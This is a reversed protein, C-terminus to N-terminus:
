KGSKPQTLDYLTVGGVSVTKFNNKVWNTIATGSGGVGQFNSGRAGEPSNSNVESGPLASGMGGGPLEGSASGGPFGGAMGGGPFESSTGRGPFTNSTNRGSFGGPGGAGMGDAIYYHIKGESVYQKFESLTMAPDSGSFGGIAMVPEGSALQYPASSMASTTAAVWTYHSADKQLLKVVAESPTTDGRGSFGGTNNRLTTAGSAEAPLSRSSDGTTGPGVGVAGNGGFGGKFGGGFTMSSVAPGASPTSGTHPTAVTDLTYAMPGALGVIMAAVAAGGFWRRGLKAGIVIAVAAIIGVVLISFRLWPYWTPTRNLLVYSWVVTALTAGALGGRAIFENKRRWLVDVGIGVLAAVSPALAITYYTHIIGQGLSFALGTVVLSLVWLIMAQFARDTRWKRRVIWVTIVFLILAGPILWSIQGGMDTAFLRFLGTAGSFGGSMGGGTFAHTSGGISDYTLKPTGGGGAMGSENGSLRGLGNYGFILNLISNNQSSGIYPRDAAPILQVIAVWWGASVVVAIASMIIQVLRRRLSMPSFVLYVVVFAPVVLFAALMKTLFGFGILVSALMLWKTKGAELSRTLAYASSTLLLVLLADPNNFRFMLAAVPTTALVAGALLAAGPSFWRRITSYLVWVCAVGELAEPVLISWSNLGFIRASLDMIWLSAPPKDVTIYNSADLSGFFFAKWSKAAAQVAASYFSNSWGSQDLGWIYAVGTLLLLAILAPRVWQADEPRGRLFTRFGQRRSQLTSM